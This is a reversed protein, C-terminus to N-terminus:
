IIFVVFLNYPFLYLIILKIIIIKSLVFKSFFFFSLSSLQSHATERENINWGREGEVCVYCLVEKEEEYRWIGFISKYCQIIICDVNGM